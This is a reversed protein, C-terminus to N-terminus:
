NMLKYRKGERLMINEVWVKKNYWDEETYKVRSKQLHQVINTQISSMLLGHGLNAVQLIFTNGVLM